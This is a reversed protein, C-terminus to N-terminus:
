SRQKADEALRVQAVYEDLLRRIMRQYSTNHQKAQTKFFDISEQSLGITVKVVQDAKALREPTPLFDEVIELEGLEPNDSYEVMVKKMSKGGKDGFALV